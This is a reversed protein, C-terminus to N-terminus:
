GLVIHACTRVAIGALSGLVAPKWVAGIRRGATSLIAVGPIDMPHILFGASANVLGASIQGHRVMSDIVGMMATGGALYKTLGPLVIVPDIGVMSLSPTLLRTLIDIAGCQRLATVAVISLVLLPIAGVTIRFAEAGASNIIELTGKRGSGHHPHPLTEDTLHEEASLHRGTGYTTAAAAVLGGLLSFLLTPGLNGSGGVAHLWVDRLWWQLAALLEARRRRYEAEIAAALEDEWRERQEKEADEYQELPSRATLTTQIESRAETLKGLLQDLVRYRGLLSKQSGAAEQAFTSVWATRAADVPAAGEGSFSLRLCRSLTTELLRESDTTLLILISKAPPEELTKLLANFAAGTLM